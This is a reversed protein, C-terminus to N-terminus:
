NSKTKSTSLLGELQVEIRGIASHIDYVRQETIVTTSLQQEMGAIAERTDVLGIGIYLVCASLILLLGHSPKEIFLQILEIM